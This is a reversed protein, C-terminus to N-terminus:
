SGTIGHDTEILWVAFIPYHWDEHVRRDAHARQIEGKSLLKEQVSWTAVKVRVSILAQNGQQISLIMSLITSRTSTALGEAEM